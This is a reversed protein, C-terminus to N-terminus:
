RATAWGIRKLLEPNNAAGLGINHPFLTAGVVNGLGHVADTGWIVPIGLRGDSKDISANYFSDALDVWDKLSAYKNNGPTSGGGNLVSGIHYKKIDEATVQKIEPQVVQGIKEELTMKALLEEIRAEVAPDKKVASTIAPWQVTEAVSAATQQVETTTSEKPAPDCAVLSSLVVLSVATTLFSSLSSNRKM